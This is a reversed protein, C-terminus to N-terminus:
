QQKKRFEGLEYFTIHQYRGFDEDLRFGDGEASIFRKHALSELVTELITQSTRSAPDIHSSSIQRASLEDWTFSREMEPHLDDDFFLYLAGVELQSLYRALDSQLIWLGGFRRSAREYDKLGVYRQREAQFSDRPVFSLLEGTYGDMFAVVKRDPEDGTYCFSISPIEGDVKDPIVYFRHKEYRGVEQHLHRSVKEIRTRHSSHYLSDERLYQVLTQYAVSHGVVLYDPQDVDPALFSCEVGFAESFARRVSDRDSRRSDAKSFHIAMRELPGSVLERKLCDLFMDFVGKILPQQHGKLLALRGIEVRTAVGIGQIDTQMVPRGGFRGLLLTSKTYERAMEEFAKRVGRTYKFQASPEYWAVIDFITPKPKKISSVKGVKARLVDPVVTMLQDVEM